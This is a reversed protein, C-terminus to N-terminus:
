NGVKSVAEKGGVAGQGPAGDDISGSNGIDTTVSNNISDEWEDIAKEIIKRDKEAMMPWLKDVISRMQVKRVEMPAQMLALEHAISLDQILNRVDFNMPYRVTDVGREGISIKEGMYIRVLTELRNSFAQMANAKASLLANVREFDFAKAVGSSNDIGMSNDQKTREGSLGVTHYIENIIQRITSLILNAQRPDPAIYGPAAGHEGDYLLIQSTGLKVIRRREAEHDPDDPDKPSAAPAGNLVGQAPMVLQSFTQDNIIQDLNSLYNAVARDLYAIDEILAPVVYKSDSEIHDCKLVPVVGLDHERYDILEVKGRKNTSFLAWYEKTWLRYQPKVEGSSTFPDSDDRVNEQLLVWSYYGSQDYGCDLFQDPHVIYAYLQGQMQREEALTLPADGSYSNDVVVYCRGFISSAKGVQREFEHLELGSMTACQRFRKLGDIVDESRVPPTKFLYKNVLDVVERTHNFRYARDVRGKYTEAGERNFQFIHKGFWDRTGLYTENLFNWHELKEDYEPHRRDILGKLSKSDTPIPISKVAKESM